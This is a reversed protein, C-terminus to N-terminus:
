LCNWCCGTWYVMAFNNILNIDIYVFLSMCTLNKQHQLIPNIM